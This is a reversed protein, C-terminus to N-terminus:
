NGFTNTNSEKNINVIDKISNRIIHQYNNQLLISNNIKFFGPGKDLKIFDINLTIISHDTNYGVKIDSNNIFKFSKRHNFFLRSTLICNTKYEFAM